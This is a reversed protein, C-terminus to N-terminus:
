SLLLRGSKCERKAWRIFLSEGDRRKIDGYLSSAMTAEPTKGHCNLLGWELALRRTLPWPPARPIILCLPNKESWMNNNDSHSCPKGNGSHAPLRLCLSPLGARGLVADSLFIPCGGRGAGGRGFEGGEHGM